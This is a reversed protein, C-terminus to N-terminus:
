SADRAEWELRQGCNGCYNVESPPGGLPHDIFVVNCSPCVYDGVPTRRKVVKCPIDRQAMKVLADLLDPIDQRAHAIFECDNFCNPQNSIQMHCIWDILDREQKVVVVGSPVIPREMEWPGPTAAECRALIENLRKETVM